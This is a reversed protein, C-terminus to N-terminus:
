RSAIIVAMTAAVVAAVQGAVQLATTFVDWFKPGPPDEPVWITDGPKLADIDEAEVWEGTNAKIIRVEDDLARWGYGGAINIYDEYTLQEKYILKGPNVVQGLLTIYNKAEPINIEDGRKLIINEESENMVFLREFDVVVRGPRERSKAKLYDYEDDTMDARPILKLREYEPDYETSGVSRTLSAETLSADDLFGGAQEIIEKLTTKDKIIKYWGPYNVYGDVKVFRDLYYEPIQRIIVRDQNKLEVPNNNLADLSYYNSVQYTGTEDFSVVEISDERAKLTLGGALEILQSVTEGEVYEYAGSYKIEGYITIMKDVKDVIVVDGETLYPNESKDGFRLYTLLDYIKEEGNRSIIKIN